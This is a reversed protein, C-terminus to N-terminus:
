DHARGNCKEQLVRPKSGVQKKGGARQFCQPCLRTQSGVNRGQLLWGSQVACFVNVWPSLTQKEPKNSCLLMLPHGRPASLLPSPAARSLPRSNCIFTVDECLPSLISRWSLALCPSSLSQSLMLTYWELNGLAKVKPLSRLVAVLFSLLAQFFLSLFILIEKPRLLWYANLM